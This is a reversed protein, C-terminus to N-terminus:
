EARCERHINYVFRTYYSVVNYECSLVYMIENRIKVTVHFKIVILAWNERLGLRYLAVM